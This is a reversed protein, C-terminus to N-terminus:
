EMLRPEIVISREQPIHPLLGSKKVLLQGPQSAIFSAFGKGLGSYSQGEHLYMTFVLPYEGTKIQSQFPMAANKGNASVALIKLKPKRIIAFSDKEDTIWNAPIIAISGPQSLVKQVAMEPHSVSYFAPHNAWNVGLTDQLYQILSYYQTDLYITIPEKRGGLYEWHTVKRKFIDKLQAVSIESVPLAKSAIVAWASKAAKQTFLMKQNNSFYQREEHTFDRHLVMFGGSDLFTQSAYYEHVFHLDIKAKPYQTEFVEKQQSLWLSDGVYAFVKLHGYTPAEEPADLFQCAACIGIGFFLLVKNMGILLQIIVCRKKETNGHWTFGLCVGFCSYGDRELEQEVWLSPFLIM